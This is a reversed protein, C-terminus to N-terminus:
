AARDSCNTCVYRKKKLFKPDWACGNACAFSETCGCHECAPDRQPFRSKTKKAKKM